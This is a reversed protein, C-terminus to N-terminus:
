GDSPAEGFPIVDEDEIDVAEIGEIWADFPKVPPLGGALAKAHSAKWALWYMHEAKNSAGEGFAKGLGTNFQREFAVITAPLIKVQYAEGELPRVTLVMTSSM